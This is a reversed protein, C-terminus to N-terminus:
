RAGHRSPNRPNEILLLGNGLRRVRPPVGGVWAERARREDFLRAVGSFFGDHSLLVGGPSLRAYLERLGTEVASRLDVDVFAAAVPRSFRPLTTELRGPVFRCASPCGHRRVAGRVEALSGRYSGRPARLPRGFLDSDDLKEPLGRFTDFVFLPRRVARALLSLKATGAGKYAGAEVLCGPVDARSFVADAFAAMEKWLHLADVRDTIRCFAEALERRERARPGRAAAFAVLRRAEKLALAEALARRPGKAGSPPRMRRPLLRATELEAGRAATPGLARELSARGPAGANWDKVVRVALALYPRPPASRPAPVRENYFL